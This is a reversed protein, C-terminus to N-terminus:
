NGKQIDNQTKLMDDVQIKDKASTQSKVLM